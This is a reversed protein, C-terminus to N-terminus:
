DFDYSLNSEGEPKLGFVAAMQIRCTRTKLLQNSEELMPFRVGSVQCLSAHETITTRTHTHTYLLFLVHVAQWVPNNNTEM